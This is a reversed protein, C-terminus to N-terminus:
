RRRDGALLGEYIGKLQGAVQRWTKPKPPVPLTSAADHFQRLHRATTQTSDTVPCYSASEGFVTRAWPLDSLLLPCECAAAELASLSLSEMTSLLVFGRARRYIEALRTRDSIGGEYRVLEPQSKVLALFEQYYADSEAYPKGIIWVPTRAEIAARALEAVRKRETITAICVLHGGREAPAANMFVEEVGNPVVHVRGAPAGFITRMLHAEWPTLALCADATQYSRSSLASGFSGPLTKELVRLALRHLRHALPSRSGQATLLDALVVKIGKRQSQEIFLPTPRGFFHILDGTQRDDWWRMFEVEVGTEELARKTQEIQVQVGGHAVSFPLSHMFLIKM